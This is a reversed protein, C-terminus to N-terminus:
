RARDMRVGERARGELESEDVLGTEAVLIQRAIEERRVWALGIRPLARTALTIQKRKRGASDNIRHRKFLM